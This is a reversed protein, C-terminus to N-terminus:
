RHNWLFTGQHYHYWRLKYPKDLLHCCLHRYTQDSRTAQSSPLRNSKFSKGTITQAPQVSAEFYPPHLLKRRDEEGAVCKVPLNRHRSAKVTDPYPRTRCVSAIFECQHDWVPRPSVSTAPFTELFHAGSRTFCSVLSSEDEGILPPFPKSLPRRGWNWKLLGLLYIRGPKELDEAGRCAVSSLATVPSSAQKLELKEM